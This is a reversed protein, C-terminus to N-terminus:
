ERTLYLANIYIVYCNFQNCLMGFLLTWPALMSSVLAKRQKIYLDLLDYRKTYIGSDSRM